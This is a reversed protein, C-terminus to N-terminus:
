GRLVHVCVCMWLCVCMYVCVCIYIYVCVCDCVCVRVCACVCVRVCVCVCDDKQGVKPGVRQRSSSEPSNGFWSRSRALASFWKNSWSNYQHLSAGTQGLLKEYANLQQAKCPNCRQTHTRMRAQRQAKKITSSIHLGFPSEARGAVTRRM